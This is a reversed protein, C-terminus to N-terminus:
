SLSDYLKMRDKYKTINGHTYKMMLKFNRYLWKTDKKQFYCRGILKYALNIRVDLRKTWFYSSVSTLNEIDKYMEDIRVETQLKKIANEKSTAVIQYTLISHQESSPENDQDNRMYNTKFGFLMGQKDILNHKKPAMLKYNKMSSSNSLNSLKRTRLVGKVEGQVFSKYNLHTLLKTGILKYYKSKKFENNKQVGLNHIDTVYSNRFYKSSHKEHATVETWIYVKKQGKTIQNIRGTTLGLSNGIGTQGMPQIGSIKEKYMRTKQPIGYLFVTSIKVFDQYKMQKYLDSKANSNIVITSYIHHKDSFIEKHTSLVFGEKNSSQVFSSELFSIINTSFWKTNITNYGILKM